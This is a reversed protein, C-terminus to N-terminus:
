KLYYHIGAGYTIEYSSNGPELFSGFSGFAGRLYIGCNKGLFKPFLEVGSGVSWGTWNYDEIPGFVNSDYAISGKSFAVFSYPYWYGLVGDKGYMCYDIEATLDTSKFSSSHKSGYMFQVKFNETIGIRAGLGASRSGYNLGIGIIRNGVDRKGAANSRFSTSGTQAFTSSSLILLAHLVFLFKKM